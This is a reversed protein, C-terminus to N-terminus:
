EARVFSLTNGTGGSLAYWLRDDGSEVVVFCMREADPSSLLFVFEGTTGDPCAQAFAIRGSPLPEGAYFEAFSDRGIEVVMNPDDTSRWRGEIAAAASEASFSGDVAPATEEREAPTRAAPTESSAPREDDTSATPVQEGAPDAPAEESSFCAALSLACAFVLLRRM